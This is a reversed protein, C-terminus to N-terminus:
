ATALGLTDRLQASSDVVAVPQEAELDARTGAGWTVGIAAIGAAHAAALDTAADGVYVATDRDATGLAALAHEIPEAGPKHTATDERATVHDIAGMGTLDLGRRALEQGKSTVVGTRAGAAILDTVVDPMGELAGISEDHHAHNFERYVALMQTTREPDVRTFTEQLPLGIWRRIEADEVEPLAFAALTHRYSRVILEVSDVLTGDLDFLVTSWRLPAPSM